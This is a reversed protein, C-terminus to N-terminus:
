SDDSGHRQRDLKTPSSIGHVLQLTVLAQAVCSGFSVLSSWSTPVFLYLPIAVGTCCVSSIALVWTWVWSLRALGSNFVTPWILTVTSLIQLASTAILSFFDADDVTGAKSPAHSWALAAPIGSLLCIIPVLFLLTATTSRTDNYAQVASKSARSSSQFHDGQRDQLNRPCEAVVDFCCQSVGRVVM